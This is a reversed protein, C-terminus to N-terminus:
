AKADKHRNRGFRKNGYYRYSDALMRRKVRSIKTSQGELHVIEPGEIIRCPVGMEAARFCLDEDECYMFINEDFGDLADFVDKRIFLDAGTVFDVKGGGASVYSVPLLRQRLRMLAPCYLYIWKLLMRKPTVFSGFSVVSNGQADVLNAGLISTDHEAERLFCHVANNRLITDSNLFFLYKGEAVRAAANNARGFGLNANNEVLKVQPYKKRLMQVSGDSSGNDSVIIEYSLDKTQEVVSAIAQDLLDKTNYSVIIVSIDMLRRDYDRIRQMRLLM